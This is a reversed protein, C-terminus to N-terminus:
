DVVYMRFNDIYPKNIALDTFRFCFSDAYKEITKENIALTNSRPTGVFKGDLYVHAAGKTNDVVVTINHWTGLPVDISNADTVEATNSAVAALKMTTTDLKACTGWENTSAVKVGGNYGPVFAFITPRTTENVADANFCVDLSVVYYSKGLILDSDFDVFVAASTAMFTKGDESMYTAKSNSKDDTSFSAANPSAALETALDTNEFDLSLLTKLEMAAKQSCNTCNGTISGDEGIVITAADYAHALSLKVEMATGCYVCAGKKYGETGCVTPVVEDTADGMKHDVKAITEVVKEGCASCTKTSTGEAQCTAAVTVAAGFSHGKAPEIENGCVSCVSAATCTAAGAPTCETKATASEAVVEGCTKCTEKHYGRAKCTAPIDEIELDHTHVETEAVPAETEPADTEPANTEPADTEPANTEAPTGCAVFLCVVLALALVVLMLKNLKM